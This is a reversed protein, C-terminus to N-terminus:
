IDTIENEETYEEELEASMMKDMDQEIIRKKLERSIAKAREKLFKEYDNDWVGFKELNNILHSKMTEPLERNKRSFSKMYQSPPKARIERKNLYDDVITINLIHNIWYDKNEWDLKKNLYARPFFHHYNKSNAQKLWGNDIRVLSDDIFSKPQFYTYLSLLAKIYSRGASFGGNNEIFGPSIDIAWEYRPLEGKLIADIKRKDQALKAELGSTYRTGLAARWFFDQLHKQKDGTPKNKHHYFFYAFPVILANYPLLQSVPIRYFNRFYDVAAEIADVADDWIDIFKNKNLKLITRKNCEKELLLSITQLVTADSITEYDVERLREILKRYKEALDFDKESDFTKAIMIEFVTLPKGGENIRTFIETAIDLPADRVLIISYSYSEIRARYDQLKPHYKKDFEFLLSLDGYLLDKLRILAAQDLNEKDIVVVDDDSDEDAELNIYIDDYDELKEGRQIKLGKLTAFLTTLRQQGDLVYDLFESQNLDPLTFNGLNRISRLRDKTRWFIFTGIPYGKIISDMLKASKKIDWVFERQFQPIKIEGKEIDSILVKFPRGVPEPLKM